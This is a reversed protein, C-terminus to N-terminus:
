PMFFCYIFIFLFYYIIHSFKCQHPFLENYLCLITASNRFYCANSIHRRLASSDSLYKLCMHCQVNKARNTRHTSCTTASKFTRLCIEGLSNRQLYFYM